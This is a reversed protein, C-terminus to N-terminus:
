LLAEAELDDAPIARFSGVRGGGANNVLLDIPRECSTLRSEVAALETRRTLDAPLVDVDVGYTQILSSALANLRERRRAVLVLNCRRSALEHSFAAGIGASAGTVLAWNWPRGRARM